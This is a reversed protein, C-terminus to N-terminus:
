VEQDPLENKVKSRSSKSQEKSVSTYYPFSALSHGEFLDWKEVHEYTDEKQLGSAPRYENPPESYEAM